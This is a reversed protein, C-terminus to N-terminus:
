MYIHILSLSSTLAQGCALHLPIAAPQMSVQWLGNLSSIDGLSPVPSGQLLPYFVCITGKHVLFINASYPSDRSRWPFLNRHGSSVGPWLRGDSGIADELTSPCLAPGERVKFQCVTISLLCDELDLHRSM